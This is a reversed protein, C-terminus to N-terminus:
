GLQPCQATGARSGEFLLEILIRINRIHIAFVNALNM